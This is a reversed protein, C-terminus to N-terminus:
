TIFNILITLLKYYFKLIYLMYLTILALNQLVYASSSYKFVLLGNLYLVVM